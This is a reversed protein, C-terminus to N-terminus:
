IDKVFGVEIVKDMSVSLSAIKARSNERLFFFAELFAKRVISSGPRVKMQEKGIIYLVERNYARELAELRSSTTSTRSHPTSTGGTTELVPSKTGDDIATTTANDPCSSQKEGERDLARAVIHHHIKDYVLSALDPTIVEDM